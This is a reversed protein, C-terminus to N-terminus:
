NSFIHPPQALRPSRQVFSKLMQGYTAGATTAVNNHGAEPVIWLTKPQSAVAYLTQSMDYPVDIDATGHIILLPMKLSSIKAISDFKQTLILDVPLFGYPTTRYAMDRMSTFTSEVILGAADPHQTALQIAIAGGLSHGYLFIQEPPVNRDNVLYRWAAEADQYVKAETPFGGSSRGYGRYDILLVSLGADHLRAAQAVNAGINEGNGHLHLAVGSGRAQVRELSPIWWGHLREGRASNGVPLWVDEYPLNFDEPTSEITASPFFIMRTQRAYIVLCLALYAIALVGAVGFSVNRLLPLFIKM